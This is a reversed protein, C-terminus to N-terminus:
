FSSLLKMVSRLPSGTAGKSLYDRDEDTWASEAIDLHLWKNKGVFESLFLAGIITGAKSKGTNNIDALGDKLGKKYTKELPLQWAPEDSDKAARLYRDILKQDNGLVATYIEGLAYRVHGTLTAMDIIYDPEKESAYTLADALIMRGECDTNYIEVTKGSRSTVINGPVEAGGDIMNDTAPIYADIRVPLRLRSAAKIVAITAAAGAMDGKMNSMALSPKLDYGGSDFTIGKGVLAIKAKAKKAPRYTLHIFRPENKAGASVAMLLGMREKEIEKPGMVTCLLGNESAVKKSIRALDDPTMDRAPTNTLDRAMNTAEAIIMGRNVADEIKSTSGKCILHLEKFSTPEINKKDKYREFRYGGLVAGEVLAEIRAAPSFGKFSEMAVVGAASRAKIENAVNVIKAGARRSIDPSFEKMEGIGILLVAKAPIKGATHIIKHSGAEGRFNEDAIIKSIMGGLHKDLATGNDGKQLVATGKDDKDKKKQHCFLVILDTEARELPEHTFKFEM